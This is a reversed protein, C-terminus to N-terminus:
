ALNGFGLVRPNALAGAIKEQIKTSSPHEAKQEELVMAINGINV